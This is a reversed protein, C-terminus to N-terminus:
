NKLKRYVDKRFGIKRIIIRKLEHDIYFLVRIKGTKMRYLDSKGSMKKINLSDPFPFTLQRIKLITQRREREELKELDDKSFLSYFRKYM